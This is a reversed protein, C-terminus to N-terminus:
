KQLLKNELIVAYLNACTLLFQTDHLTFINKYASYTCFGGYTKLKGIVPCCTVSQYGVHGLLSKVDTFRPDVATVNIIVPQKTSVARGVSVDGVRVQVRTAFDKMYWEPLFGTFRIPLVQKEEDLRFLSHYTWGVIERLTNLYIPFSEEISKKDSTAATILFNLYKLENQRKILAQFALKGKRLSIFIRILEVVVAVAFIIIWIVM